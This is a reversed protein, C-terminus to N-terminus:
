NKDSSTKRRRSAQKPKEVRREEARKYGLALYRDVQDDAVHVPVGRFPPILATM